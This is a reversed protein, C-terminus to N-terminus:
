HFTSEKSDTEPRNMLRRSVSLGCHKRPRGTIAPRRSVYLGCHRRSCSTIAPSSLPFPHVDQFNIKFDILASGRSM